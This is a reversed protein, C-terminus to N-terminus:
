EVVTVNSVQQKQPGKRDRFEVRQGESLAKYGGDHQINGSRVNVDKSGDNPTIHGFGHSVNLFKVTDQM